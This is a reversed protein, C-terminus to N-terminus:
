ALLVLGLPLGRHRARGGEALKTATGASLPAAQVNEHMLNGKWIQRDRRCLAGGTRQALVRLDDHGAASTFTFGFQFTESGLPGSLLGGLRTNRSSISSGVM